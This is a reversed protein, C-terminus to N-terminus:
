HIINKMKQIQESTGLVFLKANKVMLTDPPPNVIFEGEPTKFGVINAGTLRRISLDHITKNILQDPLDSCVIEMLNVGEDGQVSLHNYFELVDPKAVLTAMHTGGVKEPLVVHHAGAKRLKLDSSDSSARSILTIEPNLAKASLVVYLNDADIPMTTVIVRADKIGAKILIEDETADGEIFLMSPDECNNMINKDKEIILFPMKYNKFEAAVQKGLRGYGCIIVHKRMKRIEKLRQSGRIFYNFQLEILYTSISTIAYAFIGFSSIILFITFIKGSMTLPHVEQFGVTAITIVTMYVADILNYNELIIYGSVGAFIVAAILALSFRLHKKYTPEM